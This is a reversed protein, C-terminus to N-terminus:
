TGRGRKVQRLARVINAVVVILGIWRYVDAPLYPALMPLHRDLAVVIEDIFPLTALLAASVSAALARVVARAKQGATMTERQRRARWQKMPASYYWQFGMWLISVLGALAPLAQALWGMAHKFEIM